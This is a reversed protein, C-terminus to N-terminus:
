SFFFGVITTAAFVIGCGILWRETKERAEHSGKAWTYGLLVGVLIMVAQIVKTVQTTLSTVKNTVASLDQAQVILPLAFVIAISALMVIGTVWKELVSGSRPAKFNVAFV